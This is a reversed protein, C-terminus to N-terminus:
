VEAEFGGLIHRVRAATSEVHGSIDGNGAVELMFVGGYGIRELATVFRPWDIVGEGPALHDDAKGHNDSAQVHIIRPGLRDVTDFLFGGLSCHSTDLCVGTNEAPIRALIWDLDQPQGGLLHPLPTEVVLTLGRERCMAWVRTLGEVSLALRAEREWVWRQDEGGPHIVYLGGGLIQLADAARALRDLSRQRLGTDPSTLNVDHGFPAHLSHIVLGLGAIRGHLARLNGHHNLELHQPATCIELRRFGALQIPELVDGIPHRYAIGTSLGIAWRM